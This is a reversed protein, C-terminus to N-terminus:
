KRVPQTIVAQQNNWNHSIIAITVSTIIVTAVLGIFWFVPSLKTNQVAMDIKAQNGNATLNELKGQIDSLAELQMAQKGEIRGVAQVLEHHAPCVEM